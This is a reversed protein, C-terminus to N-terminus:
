FVRYSIGSSVGYPHLMGYTFQPWFQYEFDCLRLMWHGHDPAYDLGAGPAAVLYAGHAYGFPFTFEGRGALLKVYPRLTRCHPEPCPVALRPGALYTAQRSGPDTHLTLLRAELELGVRRYLNADVYAAGGAIKRRGYDAQYASGSAGVTIFSGPETATLRAQPHAAAPMAAPMFTALAFLYTKLLKTNM